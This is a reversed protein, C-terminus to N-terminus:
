ATADVCSLFNIKAVGSEWFCKGFVFRPINMQILISQTCVDIEFYAM